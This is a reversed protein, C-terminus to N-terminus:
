AAAAAACLTLADTAALFDFDSTGDFYAAKYWEDETPLFFLM